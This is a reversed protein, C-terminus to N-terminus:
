EIKKKIIEIEELIIGENKLKTFLAEIEEDSVNHNNKKQLLHNICQGHNELCLFCRRYFSSCLRNITELPIGNWRNQSSRNIRRQQNSSLFEGSREDIGM